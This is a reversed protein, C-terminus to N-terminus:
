PLSLISESRGNDSDLNVGLSAADQEELHRRTGSCGSQFGPTMRMPTANCRCGPTSLMPSFTSWLSAPPSRAEAHRTTLEPAQCFYGHPQHPTHLCATYESVLHEHPSESSTKSSQTWNLPSRLSNKRSGFYTCVKKVPCKEFDTTMGKPQNTRKFGFQTVSQSPFIRSGEKKPWMTKSKRLVM